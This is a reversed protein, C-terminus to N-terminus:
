VLKTRGPIAHSPPPRSADWALDKPFLDLKSEESLFKWTVRQGTYAAVRGLVAALSSDATQRLEVIPKGARISDVLDKHEQRYADSISGKLRWIERGERDVIKSGVNSAGIHCSGKTGHFVNSVDTASGPIQRSMFTVIRGGPYDYEVSFSDWMESDDPRTFRGGSGFASVPNAGMVWNM